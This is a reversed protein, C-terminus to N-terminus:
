AGRDIWDVVIVGLLFRAFGWRRGFSLDKWGRLEFEKRKWFPFRLDGFVNSEEFWIERKQVGICFFHNFGDFFGKQFESFGHFRMFFLILICRRLLFRYFFLTSDHIPFTNLIAHLSSLTKKQQEFIGRLYFSFIESFFCHILVRKEWTQEDKCLKPIHLSSHNSLHVYFHSFISLGEM